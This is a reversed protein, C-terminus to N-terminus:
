SKSLFCNASIIKVEPDVPFGFPTIIVWWFIIELVSEIISYKFKSWFIYKQQKVM